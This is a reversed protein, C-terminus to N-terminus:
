VTSTPTTLAYNLYFRLAKNLIDVDQLFTQNVVTYASQLNRIRSILGEKVSNISTTLNNIDAQITQRQIKLAILSADHIAFQQKKLEIEAQIQALYAENRGIETQTVQAKIEWERQITALSSLQAKISEVQVKWAPVADRYSKQTSLLKPTLINWDAFISRIDIGYANITYTATEDVSSAPVTAYPDNGTAVAGGFAIAYGVLRLINEGQPITTNSLSEIDAQAQRLKGIYNEVNQLLTPLNQKLLNNRGEIDMRLNASTEIMLSAENVKNVVDRAQLVIDGVAKERQILNSLIAQAEAVIIRSDQAINLATNLAENLATKGKSDSSGSLKIISGYINSINALIPFFPLGHFNNSLNKIADLAGAIATVSALTAGPINNAMANKIATLAFSASAVSMIARQTNPDDFLRDLQSKPLTIQTAQVGRALVDEQTFPKVLWSPNTSNPMLLYGRAVFDATAVETMNMTETLWDYVPLTEPIAGLRHRKTTRTPYYATIM